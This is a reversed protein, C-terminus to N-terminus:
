TRRARSYGMALAGALLIGSGPLPIPSVEVSALGFRLQEGTEFVRLAFFGDEAEPALAAAGALTDPDIPAFGAYRVTLAGFLGEGDDSPVAADFQVASAVGDTAQRAAGFTGPEDLRVGAVELLAALPDLFFSGAAPDGDADPAADDYALVLRGAEGMLAPDFSPGAETVVGEAVLRVPAAEAVPAALALLLAARIMAPEM